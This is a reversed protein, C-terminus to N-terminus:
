LPFRSNPDPYAINANYAAQIVFNLLRKTYGNERRFDESWDGRVEHTVELTDADMPAGNMIPDHWAYWHFVPNYYRGLLMARTMHEVPPTPTPHWWEIHFRNSTGPNVEGLGFRAM